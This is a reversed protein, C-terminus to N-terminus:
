RLQDGVSPPIQMKTIWHGKKGELRYILPKEGEPSIVVLLLSDQELVYDIAVPWGGRSFGMVALSSLSFLPMFQPGKEDLLASRAESAGVPSGELGSSCDSFMPLPPVVIVPPPEGGGPPQKDTSRSTIMSFSQNNQASFPTTLLLLLLLSG